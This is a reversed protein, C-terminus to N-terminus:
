DWRLKKPKECLFVLYMIALLSLSISVSRGLLKKIGNKLKLFILKAASKNVIYDNPEMLVVGKKAVRLMEYLAIMPRPFHHYAEKCFAYDFQEDTFTLSEANEAQYDSIIGMEKGEKLLASTINTAVVPIGHDAIYKADLGYRGDGITVWTSNAELALLPDLQRYMRQLRWANATDTRFWLKAKESLGPNDELNQIHKQYSLEQFNSAM